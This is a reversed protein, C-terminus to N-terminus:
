FDGSAEPTAGARSAPDAPSMVSTGYPHRNAADAQEAEKNNFELIADFIEVPDKHSGDPRFTNITNAGLIADLAFAHQSIDGVQKEFASIQIGGRTSFCRRALDIDGHFWVPFTVTSIEGATSALTVPFGWDFFLPKGEAM